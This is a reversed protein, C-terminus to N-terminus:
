GDIVPRQCHLRRDVIRYGRYRLVYINGLSDTEIAVREDPYTPEPIDDAM